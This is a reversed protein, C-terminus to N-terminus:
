QLGHGTERLMLIDDGDLFCGAVDIAQSVDLCNNRRIEPEQAPIIERNQRKDLLTTMADHRHAAIHSGRLHGLQAPQRARALVIRGFRNIISQLRQVRRQDRDRVYDSEIRLVELDALQLVRNARRRRLLVWGVLPLALLCALLLLQAPALLWWAPEPPAQIDRLQLLLAEVEM